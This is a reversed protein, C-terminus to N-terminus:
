CEILAFIEGYRSDQYRSNKDIEFLNGTRQANKEQQRSGKEFNEFSEQPKM